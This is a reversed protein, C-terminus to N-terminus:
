CTYCLIEFNQQQASSQNCWSEIKEMNFMSYRAWLSLRIPYIKDPGLISKNDLKRTMSKICAIDNYKVRNDTSDIADAVNTHGNAYKM